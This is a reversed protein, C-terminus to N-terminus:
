FALTLQAVFGDIRDRDYLARNEVRPPLDRFATIRYGAAVECRAGKWALLASADAFSGNRGMDDFDGLDVPVLGLAIRWAVRGALPGGGALLLLPGHADANREAEEEPYSWVWGPQLETSFLAAAYGAGLEWRGWRRIAAARLLHMTEVDGGPNFVGRTADCRVLARDSLPMALALSGALADDQRNDALWLGLAADLAAARVATALFLLAIWRCTM